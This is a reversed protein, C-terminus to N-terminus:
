ETQSAVLWQFGCQRQPATTVALRLLVCLFLYPLCSLFLLRVPLFLLLSLHLWDLSNVPHHETATDISRRVTQLQPLNSVGAVQCRPTKSNFPRHATCLSLLAAAQIHNCSPLGSSVHVPAPRQGLPRRPVIDAAVPENKTAEVGAKKRPDKQDAGRGYIPIVQPWLDWSQVEFCIDSCHVLSKLPWYM